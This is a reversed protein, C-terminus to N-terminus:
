SQEGLDLTSESQQTFPSHKEVGVPKPFAVAIVAWLTRGLLAGSLGVLGGFVGTLLLPVMSSAGIGAVADIAASAALVPKGTVALWGLPALWSGFFTLFVILYGTRSRLLIGWFLGVVMGLLWLGRDNLLWLIVLVVLPLVVRELLRRGSSGNRRGEEKLLEAGTM